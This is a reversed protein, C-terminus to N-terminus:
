ALRDFELFLREPGRFFVTYHNAFDNGAAAFRLNKTSAVLQEFTIMAELRALPAGLCLHLGNGFALHDKINAREIDFAEPASFVCEDRNASGWALFVISGAAIPVGGLETDQVVMKPSIQVPADLRLSEEM